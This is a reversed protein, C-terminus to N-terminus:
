GVLRESAATQSGVLCTCIYNEKWRSAPETVQRKEQLVIGPSLLVWICEEFGHAVHEANPVPGAGRDAHGVEPYRHQTHDHPGSAIGHKNTMGSGEDLGQIWWSSLVLFLYSM